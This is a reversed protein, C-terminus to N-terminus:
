MQSILIVKEKVAPLRTNALFFSSFLCNIYQQKNCNDILHLPSIKSAGGGLLLHLNNYCHTYPTTKWFVLNCTYVRAIGDMAGRLVGVGRVQGPKPSVLYPDPNLKNQLCHYNHGRLLSM